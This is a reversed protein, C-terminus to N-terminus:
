NFEIGYRKLLKAVKVYIDTVNAGKIQHKIPIDFWPPQNSVLEMDLVVPSKGKVKVTLQCLYQIWERDKPLYGFIKEDSQFAINRDV